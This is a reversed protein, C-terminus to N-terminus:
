IKQGEEVYICTGKTVLSEDQSLEIGSLTGLCDRESQFKFQHVIFGDAGTELSIVYLIILWM